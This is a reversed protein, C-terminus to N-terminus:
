QIKRFVSPNADSAKVAYYGEVRGKLNPNTVRQLITGFHRTVHLIYGGGAYIGLHTPLGRELIVAVDGPKPCNSKDGRLLPAYKQYLPATENTDLANKYLDRLDPLTADFQEIYVLRVLGYCDLGSKDRGGSKFPIGIYLGAWEALEDAM